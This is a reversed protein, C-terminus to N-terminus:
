GEPGKPAVTAAADGGATPGPASGRVLDLARFEMGPSRLLQALHAFGQTDKLRYLQGAYGLTWYEGEKHFLAQDPAWSTPVSNASATGVTERAQTEQVRM